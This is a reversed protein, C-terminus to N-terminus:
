GRPMTSRARNLRDREDSDLQKWTELDDEDKWDSRPTWQNEALVYEAGCHECRLLDRDPAPDYLMAEDVETMPKRGCDPCVQSSALELRRIVIVFATVVAIGLLVVTFFDTM